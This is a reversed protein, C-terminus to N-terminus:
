HKPLAPRVRRGFSETLHRARHWHSPKDMKPVFESAANTTLRLYFLAAAAVYVGTWGLFTGMIVGFEAAQYSLM